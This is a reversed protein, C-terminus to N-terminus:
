PSHDGSLPDTKAAALADLRGQLILAAALKDKVGKRKRRSLDAELLVREAARSTLREDIFTVPCDLRDGLAAAFDMVARGAPGLSGKMNRPLGVVVEGAGLSEVLRVVDEIAAAAGMPGSRRAIVEWPQAFLRMEDSVAVGIRRFGVDLGILRGASKARTQDPSM